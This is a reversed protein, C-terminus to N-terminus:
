QPQLTVNYSKNGSGAPITTSWPRYGPLQITVTHPRDRRVRRVTVPTKAPIPRGDFVVQARPPNSNLSVEGYVGGLKIDTLRVTKGPQVTVRQSHRSLGEKSVLVSASGAPVTVTLPTRGKFEANIFVDAGSPDSKVQIKGTGGSPAPTPQPQPTPTPRPTPTPETVEKTLTAYLREKETSMVKKRYASKYGDLDLRLNYTAGMKLDDLTAPTSRGTSRGDLFIRAGSPKSTIRLSGTKAVAPKEAPKEEPEEEPAPTPELVGARELTADVPISSQADVEFAKEWGEYGRMRLAVTYKKPELNAITAPTTRGSDQGDLLIQAGSPTSTVVLKGKKAVIPELRKSIKQPKSSTLTVVQEFDEFDPKSLTIRLDRKLPLKELTAPTSLGTLKGNVAIAAGSPDTIVNLIGTPEALALKVDIAETSEIRVAKEDAVLGEKEARITYRKGVELEDLTAPTTKGTKEGDVLIAAGEPKSTVRVAGYQVAPAVPKPEPEPKEWFRAEPVYRSVGWLAAGLLLLAAFAKPWRRKKRRRTTKSETPAEQVGGGPTMRTEVFAEKPGRTRATDEGEPMPTDRHVIDMQKAGEAINMSSTLQEFAAEKASVEQVEQREEAFLANIFEALKRPTFDSYNSYLHKTLEIQLDGAHQVREEPEYALTKALIPKLAEPVSDPLDEATIHMTRIKKLVEFQSEGTFLKQGTLMEYILIGTSFIDTRSDIAKGMAQEPSMYAIKGKLIGAMTHSINMAAKAIGFDGVKVEGEYSLLINQPSIDRHVIGLPRNQSDTKRHAYDLGKCIESAIYVAIETPLTRKVERCSNIIDRLNVGNIFEMSIYYDDGVKGLDYVQVINAHSLLVSLKAEDVLMNVFDKDASCHPLIRKIALEKEFGDVGYTKAKYIEAMGGVAVKQLLLYKGFQKPEFDSM